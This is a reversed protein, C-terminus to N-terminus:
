SKLCNIETSKKACLHADKEMKEKYMELQKNSGRQQHFMAKFNKVEDSLFRVREQSMTAKILATTCEKEVKVKDDKEKELEKRKLNMGIFYKNREKESHIKAM